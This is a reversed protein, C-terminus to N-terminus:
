IKKKKLVEWTLISIVGKLICVGLFAYAFHQLTNLQYFAFVMITLCIGLNLTNYPTKSIADIPNRYLLYISQPLIALLM